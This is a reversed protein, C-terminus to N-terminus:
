PKTPVGMLKKLRELREQATEKRFNDGTFRVPSCMSLLEDNVSSVQVILRITARIIVKRIFEAQNINYAAFRQAFDQYEEEIMRTKVVHRRHPTNYQKM